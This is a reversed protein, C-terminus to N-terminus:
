TFGFRSFFTCTECLSALKNNTLALECLGEVQTAPQGFSNPAPSLPVAASDVEGSQAERVIQELAMLCTCDLHSLYSNKLEAHSSHDEPSPGTNYVLLSQPSCVCLSPNEPNETGGEAFEPVWPCSEFQTLEAAFKEENQIWASSVEMAPELSSTLSGNIESPIANHLHDLYVCVDFTTKTKISEAILDPRFRSYVALGHFFLDKEEPSWYSSPSSFSHLPQEDNLSGKLHAQVFKQHVRFQALYTLTADSKNHNMPGNPQLRDHDFYHVSWVLVFTLILPVTVHM